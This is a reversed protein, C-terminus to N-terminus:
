DNEPGALRKEVEALSGYGYQKVQAEAIREVLNEGRANKELVMDRYLAFTRDSYTSLEGRLYTESSTEWPSDEATHIPRGGGSYKPYKAAMAENWGVHIAIVEEQAALRDQSRKPLSDALRAYGEPDTSEMMRAYKETILNWGKEEAAKLDQLYSTLLEDNWTRYQATRMIEFTKWDDQCGARGGENQVKDFQRWEHRVVEAILAERNRAAKAQAEKKAAEEALIKGALYDLFTIRCDQGTVLGQATLERVFLAAIQEFCAEAADDMNVRSADYSRGEWAATQPPLAMVRDVQACVASLRPLGSAGKRLWKYYPAFRKNLLYMLKYASEAARAKCLAATTLDGRGMSRAYNSQAYQSFERMEHVLRRKWVAEPYYDLLRARIGSFLGLDDRFVAGNTAAALCFEEVSLWDMNRLPDKDEEVRVRLIGRYWAKISKAGRRSALRPDYGSPAISPDELCAERILARYAENLEEGIRQYDGETLWLCFGPGYDHDRSIADDFGFCDSGEGAFGAAIRGEYDPFKERIMPVGKEEYLKRALELNTM